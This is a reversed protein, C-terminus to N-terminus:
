GSVLDASACQYVIMRLARKAFMCLGLIAFQDLQEIM